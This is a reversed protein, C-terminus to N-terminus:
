TTLQECVKRLEALVEPTLQLTIRERKDGERYRLTLVAVPVNLTAGHSSSAVVDVRWDIGEVLKGHDALTALKAKARVVEKGTEFGALLVAVTAGDGDTLAAVDTALEEPTANGLGAARVLFRASAFAPALEVRSAGTAKAFEDITREAGSPVPEDLITSLVEWFRARALEPLAGIKAIDRSLGRPAKRGRLAVLTPEEKAGDTKADSTM